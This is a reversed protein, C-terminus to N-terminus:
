KHGEADLIHFLHFVTSRDWGIDWPCHYRDATHANVLPYGKCDFGTVVAFHQIDNIEQYAILDGKKLERVAGFPFEATPLGM